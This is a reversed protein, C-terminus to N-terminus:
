AERPDDMNDGPGTWVLLRRLHPERFQDAPSALEPTKSRDGPVEVRRRCVTLQGVRRKRYRRKVGMLAGNCVGM